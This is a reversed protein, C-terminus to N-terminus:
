KISAVPWTAYLLLGPGKPNLGSSNFLARALTDAVGTFCYDDAPQHGIRQAAPPGGDRSKRSRVIRSHPAAIETKSGSATPIGMRRFGRHLPCGKPPVPLMPWGEWQACGGGSKVVCIRALGIYSGCDRALVSTPNWRRALPPEVHHAYIIFFDFTRRCFPLDFDKRVGGERRLISLKHTGM